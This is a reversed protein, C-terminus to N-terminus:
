KAIRNIILPYTNTKPIIQLFIVHLVPKSHSSPTMYQFQLFNLDYNNKHVFDHYDNKHFERHYKM